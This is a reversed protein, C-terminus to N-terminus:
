DQALHRLAAHALLHGVVGLPLLEARQIQRHSEGHGGAALRGAAALNRHDFDIRGYIRRDEFLRGRLLVTPPSAKAKEKRETRYLFSFAFTQGWGGSRSSRFRTARLRKETQRM